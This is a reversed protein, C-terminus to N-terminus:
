IEMGMPGPDKEELVTSLILTKSCLMRHARSGKQGTRACLTQHCGEGKKWVSVNVEVARKWGQGRVLRETMGLSLDESSFAFVPM